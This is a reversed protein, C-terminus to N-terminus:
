IEGPLLKILVISHEWSKSILKSLTQIFFAQIPKKNRKKERSHLSISFFQIKKKEGGPNKPPCSAAFHPSIKIPIFRSEDPGQILGEGSNKIQLQKSKQSSEEAKLGLRESRFAM